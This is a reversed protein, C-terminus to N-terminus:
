FLLTLRMTVAFAGPLNPRLGPNPIYTIAPQFYAGPRLAAQYYWQMMMENSRLKKGPLPVIAGANPDMNLFSWALGYGFSDNKRGPVLGFATLGGGVYQRFPSVNTNNAGLQYYGSVGSNDVGPNRFWLRQSGFMYVGDAGHVISTDAAKLPGTQHWVGVAVIGPKRQEGLRYAYGTEAINFYHGNFQPGMLGTQDGTALSGDYIGYNVYLQKTPTFSMTIGTASNYYGPLFGLITPNVFIPTFGVGTVSPIRAADDTVPVPQSVNNFDFTPAMKGMRVTFKDGFEQRYWLQYLETRDLPRRGPISDFGQLGGTFDNTPQGNFQLFDIGVMGGKWAGLKESDFSLDVVGLSNLGWRGPQLGGALVGSADGIWLGGLRIGSEKDLGLFEGLKGTGTLFNVAAPNGSIAAGPTDTPAGGPPTQESAPAAGPPPQQEGAAEPVQAFATGCCAIWAVCVALIRSTRSLPM